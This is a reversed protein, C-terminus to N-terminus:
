ALEKIVNAAEQQGPVTLTWGGSKQIFFNKNKKMHGAFNKVDYTSYTKCIEILPEKELYAENNELLGKIGLLLALKIQKKAVTKEKLDKVIITYSNNDLHYINQWQDQQIGYQSFFTSTNQIKDQSYKYTEGKIPEERVLAELLVEFCKTQYKEPCKDSIEIVEKLSSRVEEFM